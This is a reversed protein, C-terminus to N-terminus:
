SARRRGSSGPPRAVAREGADAIPRDHELAEDVAGLALGEILLARGVVPRRPQARHRQRKRRPAGGLLDDDVVRGAERPDDVEAADLQMRVRHAGAIEIMGVLQADIEIRPRADRPGVHAADRQLHLRQELSSPRRPQGFVLPERPMCTLTRMSGRQVNVSTRRAASANERSISRRAGPARSTSTTSPPAGRRTGRSCGSRWPGCSRSPRNPGAAARRARTPAARGPVLDGVAVRGVERHQRHRRAERAIPSGCAPMSSPARARELRQELQRRAVLGDPRPSAGQGGCKRFISPSAGRTAGDRAFVLAPGALARAGRTRMGSTVTALEGVLVRREGAELAPLLAVGVGGCM